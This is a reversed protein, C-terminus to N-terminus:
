RGGGRGRGGRGRGRGRGKGRGRGEEAEKKEKEEKQDKKEKTIKKKAVKKSKESSPEKENEPFIPHSTPLQGGPPPAITAAPRAPADNLIDSRSKKSRPEATASFVSDPDNERGRKKTKKEELQSEIEMLAEYEHAELLSDIREALVSMSAKDAVTRAIEISRDLRLQSALDFARASRDAKCSLNILQLLNKDEEVHRSTIDQSNDSRSIQETLLSSLMVRSELQGGVSSLHLLPISLPVSVSLARASRPMPEEGKKCRIAILNNQFLGIPWYYESPLLDTQTSTTLTSDFVVSWINGWEQVLARAKGKSDYTVLLGTESFGMWQVTAGESLCVRENKVLFEKKKVNYLSLSLQPEELSSGFASVNEVWALYSEYGALCVVAGGTSMVMTQCGGVSFFRLMRDSTSIAAFTSGIAVGTISVPLPVQLTWEGNTDWSDFPHYLITSPAQGEPQSAFFAAHEGLAAVSLNYNDRFRVPQHKTTDAFEVEVSSHLGEQHVVIKGVMNWALFRRKKEIDSTAGPQFFSQCAPTITVKTEKTVRKSSSEEEKVDNMMEDVEDESDSLSKMVKSKSKPVSDSLSKM